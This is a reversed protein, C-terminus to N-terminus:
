DYMGTMVREYLNCAKQRTELMDRITRQRAERNARTKAEPTIMGRFVRIFARPSAQCGGARNEIRNYLSTMM